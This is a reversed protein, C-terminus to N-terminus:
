STLHYIWMLSKRHDRWIEILHGFIPTLSLLSIKGERKVEKPAVAISIQLWKISLSLDLNISQSDPLNGALQRANGKLSAQIVSM